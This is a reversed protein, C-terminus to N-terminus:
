EPLKLDKSCEMLHLRCANRHGLMCSKNFCFCANDYDELRFYSMGMNYYTIANSEDIEIAKSFYEVAKEYEKTEYKLMGLSHYATAFGPKLEIAKQFDKEALDFETLHLYAMGRNLYVRYFDESRIDNELASEFNEISKVYKERYMNLVGRIYYYEGQKSNRELKEEIEKSADKLRDTSQYIAIKKELADLNLPDKRLAKDILQLAKDYQENGIYFDAEKLEKPVEPDQSTATLASIFLLLKFFVVRLM